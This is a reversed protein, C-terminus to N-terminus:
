QECYLSTENHSSGPLKLFVCNTQLVTSCELSYSMLCIIKEM